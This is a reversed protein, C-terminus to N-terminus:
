SGMLHYASLGLSFFTLITILAFAMVQAVQEVVVERREM